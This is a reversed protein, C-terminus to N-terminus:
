KLKISVKEKDEFKVGDVGKFTEALKKPDFDNGGEEMAVAFKKLGDPNEMLKDINMDILTVADGNQHAADTSAIGSASKVAFSMRMGAFMPKMMALQAPDMETLQKMKATDEASPKKASNPDPKPLNVALDSGKLSFTIAKGGAEATAKADGPQYKVKNVDTFAYTVKSGSRGDPMSVEEIGKVTVGEGYAKANKEAKEKDPLLGKLQAAPDNPGGAPAGAGPQSLSGMMAKLQAGMLVTEEITGSGDKNVTVLSNMEICSSLTLAAFLTLLLSARKMTQLIDQQRDAACSPMRFNKTM